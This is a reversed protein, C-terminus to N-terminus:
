ARIRPKETRETGGPTGCPIRDRVVGRRERTKRCTERFFDDSKRALGAFELTKTHTPLVPPGDNGALGARTGSFAWVVCAKAPCVSSETGLRPNNKLHVLM